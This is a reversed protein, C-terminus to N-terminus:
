KKGGARKKIKAKEKEERKEEAREVQIEGHVRAMRSKYREDEAVQRRRQEEALFRSDKRLERM